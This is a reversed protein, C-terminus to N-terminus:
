FAYAGSNTLLAMTGTALMPDVSAQGSITIPINIVELVPVKNILIPIKHKERATNNWSTVRGTSNLAELRASRSKPSVLIRPASSNDRIGASLLIREAAQAGTMGSMSRVRDYKRFTSKVRASAILCILAGIIVLIYTPDFYFGYYPM